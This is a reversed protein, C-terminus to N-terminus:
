HNLQPHIIDKDSAPVLEPLMDDDDDDDDVNLLYDERVYTKGLLLYMIDLRLRVLPYASIHLENQGLRKIESNVIILAQMPSGNFFLNTAYAEMLHELAFNIQLIAQSEDNLSHM